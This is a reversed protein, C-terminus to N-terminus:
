IEAHVGTSAPTGGPEIKPGKNKKIYMLSKALPVEDAAWNNVSTVDIKQQWHFEQGFSYFNLFSMVPLRREFRVYGFLSLFNGERVFVYNNGIWKRVKIFGM